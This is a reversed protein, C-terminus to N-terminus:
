HGAASFDPECIQAAKQQVHRVDAKKDHDDDSM